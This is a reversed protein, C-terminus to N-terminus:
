HPITFEEMPQTPGGLGRPQVLGGSIVLKMAEEIGIQTDMVQTREVLLLFGSTPNPTTPIFVSVMKKSTFDPNRSWVAEDNTVFGIVWVDKRPYEVLVVRQFESKRQQFLIDSVQKIGVYLSRVVPLSELSYEVWRWLRKGLVNQGIVGISMFLLITLIIGLGPLRYGLARSVSEGLFGDAWLFLQFMIFLTIAVPVLLIVGTLFYNRLRTSLANLSDLLIGAINRWRDSEPPPLDNPLM